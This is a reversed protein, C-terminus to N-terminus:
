WLYSKKYGSRAEVVERYMLRCNCIGHVELGGVGVNVVGGIPLALCRRHPRKQLYQPQHSYEHLLEMMSAQCSELHSEAWYSIKRPECWRLM